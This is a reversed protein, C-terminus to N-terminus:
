FTGAKLQESIYKLIDIADQKETVGELLDNVKDYYVNTHMAPHYTASSVDKITPLFVGNVAENINIGLTKLKNRAVLARQSTGAVIHHAANAYTPVTEKAIILAERLKKSSTGTAADYVIGNIEKYIKWKEAFEAMSYGHGSNATRFKNWDLPNYEATNKLAKLDQIRQALGADNKAELKAILDDLQEPVIGDEAIKYM